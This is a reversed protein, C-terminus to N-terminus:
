SVDKSKFKPIKKWNSRVTCVGKYNSPFSNANCKKIKYHAEKATSKDRATVLIQCQYVDSGRRNKYINNNIGLCVSEAVVFVPWETCM